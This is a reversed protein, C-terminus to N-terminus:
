LNWSANRLAYDIKRYGVNEQYFAEKYYRKGYPQMAPDWLARKFMENKQDFCTDAVPFPLRQENQSYKLNM